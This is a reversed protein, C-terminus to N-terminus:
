LGHDVSRTAASKHHILMDPFFYLLAFYKVEHCLISSLLPIPIIVASFEETFKMVELAEWRGTSIHPSSQPELM